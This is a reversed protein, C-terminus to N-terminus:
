FEHITSLKGNLEVTNNDYDDGIYEPNYFLPAFNQSNGELRHINEEDYTDQLYSNDNSLSLLALKDKAIIDEQELLLINNLEKFLSKKGAFVRSDNIGSNNRLLENVTYTQCYSNRDNDYDFSNYSFPLEINSHKEVVIRPYGKNDKGCRVLISDGADQLYSLLIATGNLPDLHYNELKFQFTDTLMLGSMKLATHMQIFTGLPDVLHRLCYSSIIM